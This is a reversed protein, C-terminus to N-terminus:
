PWPWSFEIKVCVCVWVRVGAHSIGIFFNFTMFRAVCLLALATGETHHTSTLLFPSLM